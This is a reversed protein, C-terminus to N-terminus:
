LPPRRRRYHNRLAQTFVVATALALFCVIIALIMFARDLSRQADAVTFVPDEEPPAPDEAPATEEINTQVSELVMELQSDVESIQTTISELQDSDVTNQSTAQLMDVTQGLSNAADKLEEINEQLEASVGSIQAAELALWREFILGLMLVVVIFLAILAVLVRDLRRSQFKKM